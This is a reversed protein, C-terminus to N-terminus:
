PQERLDDVLRRLEAIEARLAALDEPSGPKTSARPTVFYDAPKGFFQALELANPRSPNVTGNLWKAIQSKDRGFERAFARVSLKREDLAERLRLAM